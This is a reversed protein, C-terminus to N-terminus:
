FTYGEPWGTDDRQEFFSRTIVIAESKNLLLQTVQVVFISHKDFLPMRPFLLDIVVFAEPFLRESRKNHFVGFRKTLLNLRLDLENLEVITSM